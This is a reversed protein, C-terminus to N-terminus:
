QTEEGLNGCDTDSPSTVEPPSLLEPRSLQNIVGMSTEPLFIWVGFGSAEEMGLTRGKEMRYFGLGGHWM